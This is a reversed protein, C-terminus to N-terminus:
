QALCVPRVTKSPLLDSDQPVDFAKAVDEVCYARGIHPIVMPPCFTEWTNMTLPRILRITQTWHGCLVAREPGCQPIPYSDGSHRVVEKLAKPFIGVAM